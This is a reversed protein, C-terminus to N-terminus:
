YELYEKFILQLHAKGRDIVKPKISDNEFHEEVYQQIGHHFAFYNNPEIYGVGDVFGYYAFPKTYPNFLDKSWHYPKTDLNLQKFLTKVLDTQSCIKDIIKGKYEPKLVNGYLLLPIRNYMPSFYGYKKPTGHSHDAIIVFLTHNFWPEHKVKEFFQGLCKDTYHVSNIYGKEDGGWDFVDEMPQDYPSHSSVTFVSSIFPEKLTRTENLYKEFIYEDPVGLAGRPINEDFDSEEFIKDFENFLMYSKINGYSLDGGFVFASSYGKTKLQKIISPLQVYKSPQTAISTMPQAPFASFIAAMGQDSREGSAYMNSFVLGGKILKGFNPAISDYGGIEKIMDASWSELIILAINPRTKTLIIETTDKEVTYLSDIIRKAKPYPMYEYPNHDLYDRNQDISHGLNWLSNVATANIHRNKSFYVDSQTIAIEQVGGRIGIILLVPTILFFVISVLINKRLLINRKFVFKNYAWFGFLSETIILFMGLIIQSWSATSFVESPHQLYKLAKYDIKRGWEKYIPLESATICATLVILIFVYYKNILNLFTSKFFGQLSLFLFTLGLLYCATSTDLYLGYFYTELIEIFPFTSFDGWNYIIFVTRPITFFFLWFLFHKFFYKPLDFM